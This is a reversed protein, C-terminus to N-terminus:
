RVGTLIATMLFVVSLLHLCPRPSSPVREGQQYLPTAMISFLRFIQLVALFLVVEHDLLEM